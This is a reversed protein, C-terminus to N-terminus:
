PPAAPDGEGAAPTLAGPFDVSEVFGFVANLQGNMLTPDLCIVESVVSLQQADSHVDWIVHRAKDTKDSLEFTTVRAPESWVERTSEKREYNIGARNISKVRENTLQLVFENHPAREGVTVFLFDGQCRTVNDQFVLHVQGPEAKFHPVDLRAPVTYDHGLITVPAPKGPTRPLPTQGSGCAWTGLALILVAHKSMAVFLLVAYVLPALGIASVSRSKSASGSSPGLGSAASTPALTLSACRLM